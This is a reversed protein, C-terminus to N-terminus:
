GVFDVAETRTVADDVLAAVDLPEEAAEAQHVRAATTPKPPVFLSCCDQDPRISIDYTGIWVARDIIERKDTGVLPRLIAMTAVADVAALNELTQSAVQGLSEGTVLARCRRRRAIKEAIRVM